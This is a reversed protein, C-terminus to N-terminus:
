SDVGTLWIDIIVVLAMLLSAGILLIITDM